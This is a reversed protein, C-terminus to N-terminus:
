QKKEYWDIIMENLPPPPGSFDIGFAKKAFERFRVAWPHNSTAFEKLTKAPDETEISVVELDPAQSDPPGYQIWVHERSIGAIRYFEDHEKNDGGNERAFKRGLETQGPLYPLTLCYNTM